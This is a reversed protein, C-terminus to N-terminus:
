PEPPRQSERREAQWRALLEAGKPLRLIWATAALEDSRAWNRFVIDAAEERGSGQLQAVWDAARRPNEAAWVDVVSLVTAQQIGESKVAAGLWIAALDPDSAAIAKAGTALLRERLVDDKVSMMWRLAADPDRHTWDYAVTELINGRANGEEMRQALAIAKLPDSSATQLAASSLLQEKWPSNPLQDGLVDLLDPSKLLERSILWAQEDTADARGAIWLTARVPEAELWRELVKNGPLSKLQEPTLSRIVDAVNEDSLQKTLEALIRAQGEDDDARLESWRTMKAQVSALVASM